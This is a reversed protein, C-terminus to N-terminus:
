IKRISAPGNTTVARIPAGGSGLTTTIRRHSGPGIRGEVTIPFGLDMPGNVTGTELRANYGEPVDLTLPGNSTEADLGAGDWRSGTLAVHLPGNEAQARVDGALNDLSLPGNVARMRITGNVDAVDLPGNVTQIDLNMRKPARIVFSVSWNQRRGTAPGDSSLQDGTHTVLVHQALDRAGEETGAQAQVRVVVAVSDRDWGEVSIGGNPRADVNLSGGARASWGMTREECFRARSDDDDRSRRRCDELWNASDRRSASRDRWGGHRQAVLSPAVALSLLVPVVIVVRRM